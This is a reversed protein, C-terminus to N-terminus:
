CEGPWNFHLPRRVKPLFLLCMIVVNKATLVFGTYGNAVDVPLSVFAVVPYVLVMLLAEVLIAAAIQRSEILAKIKINRTKFAFFLGLVLLLAFYIILIFFPVAFSVNEDPHHCSVRLEGNVQSFLSLSFLRLCCMVGVSYM